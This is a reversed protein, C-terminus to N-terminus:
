AAPMGRSQRRIRGIQRFLLMSWLLVYFVGYFYLFLQIRNLLSAFFLPFIMGTGTFFNRYVFYRVTAPSYQKGGKALGYFEGKQADWFRALTNWRFELLRFMLKSSTALFGALVPLISGTLLYAGYSIPLFLFGYQVDHSVPEVYVGGVGGGTALKRYRALEGDVADLWFSVIILGVGILNWIYNSFSFVFAGVLYVTTGFVTIQNPTFPLKIFIWTLYISLIRNLRGEISQSRWDPSEESNQCIKRLEKISPM